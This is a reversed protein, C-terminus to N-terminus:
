FVKGATKDQHGPTVRPKIVESKGCWYFFNQSSRRM